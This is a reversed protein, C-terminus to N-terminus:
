NNTILLARAILLFFFHHSNQYYFQMSQGPFSDLSVRNWVGNSSWGEIGCSISRSRDNINKVKRAITESRKGFQAPDFKNLRCAKIRSDLQAYRITPDITACAEPRSQHLQM